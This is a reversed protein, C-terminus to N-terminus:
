FLVAFMASSLKLMIRSTIPRVDVRKYVSHESFFCGSV